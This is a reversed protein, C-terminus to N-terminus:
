LRKMIDEIEHKDRIPMALTELIRVTKKSIHIKKFLIDHYINDYVSNFYLYIEKFDKEKSLYEKIIKKILKDLDSKTKKRILNILFTYQDISVSSESEKMKKKTFIFRALVNGV